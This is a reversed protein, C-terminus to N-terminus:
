TRFCSHFPPPASSQWGDCLSTAIYQPLLVNINCCYMSTAVAMACLHPLSAAVACEVCQICSYLVNFVHLAAYQWSDCMSAAVACQIYSFSHHMGISQLPVRPPRFAAETRTAERSPPLSHMPKLDMTKYDGQLSHISASSTLNANTRSEQAAQAALLSNHLFRQMQDDVKSEKSHREKTKSSSSGSGKSANKKPPNGSSNSAFYQSNSAFSQSSMSVRGSLGDSAEVRGSSGCDTSRPSPPVNQPPDRSAGRIGSPSISRVGSMFGTFFKKISSKGGKRSEEKKQSKVGQGGNELSPLM